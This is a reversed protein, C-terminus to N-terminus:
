EEDDRILGISGHDTMSPRTLISSSEIDNGPFM